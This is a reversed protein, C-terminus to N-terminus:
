QYFFLKRKIQIQQKNRQWIQETATQPMLKLMRLGIKGGRTIELLRFIFYVILTLIIAHM